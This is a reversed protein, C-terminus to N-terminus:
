SISSCFHM